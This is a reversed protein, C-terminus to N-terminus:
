VVFSSACVIGNLILFFIKRLQKNVSNFVSVDFIGICKINQFTSVYFISKMVNIWWVKVFGPQSIM